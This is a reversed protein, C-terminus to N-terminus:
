KLRSSKKAAYFEAIARYQHEYCYLQCFEPKGCGAIKCPKPPEDEQPVPKSRWNGM